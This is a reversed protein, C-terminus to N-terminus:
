RHPAETFSTSTDDNNVIAFYQFYVLHSSIPDSLNKYM